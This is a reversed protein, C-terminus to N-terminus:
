RGEEAWRQFLEGAKEFPIVPQAEVACTGYVEPGFLDYFEEPAGFDLVFFAGRRDALLGGAQVKGSEMVHQLRPGIVQRLTRDQELLIGDHVRITVHFQM